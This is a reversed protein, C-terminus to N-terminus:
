KTTALKAENIKEELEKIRQEIREYGKLSQNKTRERIKLELRAAKLKAQLSEIQSTM